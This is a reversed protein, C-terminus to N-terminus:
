WGWGDRLCRSDEGLMRHSNHYNTGFGPEVTMVLILDVDAVFPFVSDVPTKPKIAIGVKMGAAKIAKILGAADETAEIHFTFMDAGAEAMDQKSPVLLLSHCSCISAKPFNMKAFGLNLNNVVKVWKAPESVMLHVDFFAKSHQLSPTLFQVVFSFEITIGAPSVEGRSGGM